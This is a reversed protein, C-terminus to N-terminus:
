ASVSPVIIGNNMAQKAVVDAGIQLDDALDTIASRTLRNQHAKQKVLARPATLEAAFARNAQQDRTVASTLLRGENHSDASWASFIARAAAFRRKIETAQLLGVKMSWDDRVVAGTISIEDDNKVAGGRVSTDIQLAEFVKTAGSTDTEKIGLRGRVFRAANVGRRYAQVSINDKPLVVSQLPSLTSTGADRTMVFAQEALQAVTRFNQAPSVLCLDMLLREGLLPLLREILDATADDIDYPSLGLAGAFRCFQFEDEDTRSVLNWADHLYTDKVNAEDLRKVASSVFARLEDATQEQSLFVKGAHRFRVDAFPVDRPHASIQVSKGNSIISLAPLAFGHQATLFSHRSLFAASDHEVEDENKRPEWLLPWWNEAIWEALYYAPIELHKSTSDRADVFETVIRGGVEILLSCMTADAENTGKQALWTKSIKFDSM